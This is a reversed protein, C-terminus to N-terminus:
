RDLLPPPATDHQEILYAMGRQIMARDPMHGLRQWRSASLLVYATEESTPRQYFGWSGDANQTYRMWEMATGALEAVLRNYPPPLDLQEFAILAHATAYYPSIHWKDAWYTGNIRTEALFKLIKIMKAERAQGPPMWKLADLVHINVGSSPHREYPYSAFCDPREFRDLARSRPVSAGPRGAAALAIATNDADPIPFSPSLSIGM